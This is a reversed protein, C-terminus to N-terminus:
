KENSEGNSNNDIIKDEFVRVMDSLTYVDNAIGLQQVKPIKGTFTSGAYHYFGSKANISFNVSSNTITIIATEGNKSSAKIQRFEKFDYIDRVSFEKKKVELFVYFMQKKRLSYLDDLTKVQFVKELNDNASKNNLHSVEDIKHLTNIPSQVVSLLNEGKLNALWIILGLIGLFTLVFIPKSNLKNMTFVYFILKKPHYHMKVLVTSAIVM